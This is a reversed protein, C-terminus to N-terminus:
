SEITGKTGERGAQTSIREPSTPPSNPSAGHPSLYRALVASVTAPTLPKAVYDDMGAAICIERDGTLANATMAIIPIHGSLAGSAESQRIERTAQLGDMVPMQMDMLVLDFPHERILDIAEQGNIALTASHGMVKLFRLAVKQNVPNDEAVLIRLRTAIPRAANSAAPQTKKVSTLARCLLDHLRHESIPKFECAFILHAQLQDAPPREGQSTLMVLAPQGLAPRARIRRSLELGDAEPMHHDLLVLEYPRGTQAARELEQLAGAASDATAHPVQWRELLHHYIKRNTAHDDVVLMRRSRLCIEVPAPPPPDAPPALPVAFWFLSGEGPSSVVGIEGQMIEVLRRCIALGLGTGGFRRTTSSDAQSFRQFLTAQHEPPIGIGTDQVEIRFRGDSSPLARLVVEGKATFKIANGLLNLVIQRLRVPDGRFRRPLDTAYDLLLEIDKKRATAAQLDLCRELQEHLDFDISELVLRGAEIKSFDLVDNIVGLLTEGSFILTDVLDRQEAALPTGLLLHGMGIVGNLPTRIEHSMNALFASKAKDAAEAAEKAVMLETNASHLESTRQVVRTELETALQRYREESAALAGAKRETEGVQAVLRANSENLEATRVRVLHALRRKERRQLASVSWAIGGIFSLLAVAYAFYAGTTRHWPPLITFALRAETGYTDGVRPRVRLVYSGENLRSFTASGTSGAPTWGSSSGELMTEFVLPVNVPTGAACFHIALSNSAFPIAPINQGAPYLTRNDATLQVRTILARPTPHPLAHVSPDYRTIYNDRHLWVVGDEQPIIFYPRQGYLSDISLARDGEFLRLDGASVFWLRGAKDYMCRSGVDGEREVYRRHFDEDLVFRREAASYRMVRGSVTIRVEGHLLFLQIWSNDLNADAGLLEFTLPTRRTDVRGCKGAGLEIWAVGDRDVVGGFTTGLGPAPFSERVFGAPTERVWGIEDTATYLLGAPNGPLPFVRMWPPGAVMLQWRDDVHQFLGVDTAAILRDTAPDTILSSVNRDPPSDPTFRLLRNQDDYVGRQAVSDACLWLRGRHRAPLAFSFGAEVLPEIRSVPSPFDIRALGASLVAWLEGASGLVFRRVHALRHDNSRDLVQVVRLQRDLFLLGFNEVALAYYEGAVEQLANVRHDTTIKPSPAPTLSRGDFYQLGHQTTALLLRGDAAPASGVVTYESATSGRPLVPVLGNPTQRYIQGDTSDSVYTNRDYGFIHAVVNISGIPVIPGSPKWTAITGSSGFWYWEGNLPAVRALGPHVNGKQSPYTAAIDAYWSGRDTFVVRGINDGLGTFLNGTADTILSVAGINPEANELNQNFVEWRVGDGIAIQRLAAAAWRGDPLQHLDTPVASLGLSEPGLVVFNPVGSEITGAPPASLSTQAPSKITGLVLLLVLATAKSLWM